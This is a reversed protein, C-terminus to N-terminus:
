EVDGMLQRVPTDFKDQCFYFAHGDRRLRSRHKGGRRNIDDEIKMGRKRKCGVDIWSNPFCTRKAKFMDWVWDNRVM